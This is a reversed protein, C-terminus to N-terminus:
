HAEDIALAVVRGLFRDDGFLSRWTKNGTFTKPSGFIHTVREVVEAFADKSVEGSICVAKM